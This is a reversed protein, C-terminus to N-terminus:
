FLFRACCPCIPESCSQSSSPSSNTSFWCSRTAAPKVILTGMLSLNSHVTSVSRGVLRQSAHKVWPSPPLLISSSRILLFNCFSALFLQNFLHSLTVFCLHCFPIISSLHLPFFFLHCLPLILSFFLVDFPLSPCCLPGLSDVFLQTMSLWLGPTVAKMLNGVPCFIVTDAWSLFLCCFERKDYLFNSM